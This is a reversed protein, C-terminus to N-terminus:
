ANGKDERMPARKQEQPTNPLLQDAPLPKTPKVVAAEARKNSVMTGRPFSGRHKGKVPFDKRLPNGDFDDPNLIRTMRPHGKFSIGFMDFVEREAWTAGAWVKSITPISPKDGAVHTKIRIKINHKMSRLHVVVEFRHDEFKKMFDIATCDIFHDFAWKESEKLWKPIDVHKDVGIEVVPMDYSMGTSLLSDGFAQKLDELLDLKLQDLSM